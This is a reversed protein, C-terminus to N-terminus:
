SNHVTAGAISYVREPLAKEAYGYPSHGDGALAYLEGDHFALSEVDILSAPLDGLKGYVGSIDGPNQPNIRWLDNVEEGDQDDRNAVIVDGKYGVAGTAGEIGPPLRGRRGYVGQDNEMNSLDIIWLSDDTSNIAIFYEGTELRPKRNQTNDIFPAVSQLPLSM